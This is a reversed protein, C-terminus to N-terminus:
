GAYLLSYGYEQARTLAMVGASVFRGPIANERLEQYVAGIEQGTAPAIQTSLFNTAADCIAIEVGLERVRNINNGLNPLRLGYGDALMLNKTPAANTDPDPMQMVAHFVAGYKEWIADNFAFPTSFHRLCVVMAFDAQMGAYEGQRAAHLNSAYLLAEAGGRATASDIFVRHDGPLEDLWSDVAHRPPTFGAGQAYSPPSAVVAAGAAAGLGLLVARRDMSSTTNEAM